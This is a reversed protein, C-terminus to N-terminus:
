LGLTFLEQLSEGVQWFSDFKRTFRRAYGHNDISVIAVPKTLKPQHFVSNRDVVIFCEDDFPYDSTLRRVEYFSNLRRCLDVIRPNFRLFWTEDTIVFQGRNRQHNSAFHNLADITSPDNFTQVEIRPAFIELRHRARSLLNQVAASIEEDGRIHQRGAVPLEPHQAIM